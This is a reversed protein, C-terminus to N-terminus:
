ALAHRQALQAQLDAWTARAHQASFRATEPGIWNNVGTPHNTAAIAIGRRKAVRAAAASHTKGLCLIGAISHREILAELRPESARLQATTPRKTNNTALPDIVFNTFMHRHWFSHPSEGLHRPTVLFFEDAIYGQLVAQIWVQDHELDGLHQGYYSEGLLLIRHPQRAFDLGIWPHEGVIGLPTRRVAITNLLETM